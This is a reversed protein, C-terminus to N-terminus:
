HDCRYHGHIGGKEIIAMARFYEEKRTNDTLRAYRRTVEISSHGLLQQVCELRMGANLLESAFTHRLCHLSYGKGALGAKDLYKFFMVRATSYSMTDRQQSYFLYAKDPKRAKLWHQLAVRADASLYVVRGIGNKRTEFIEVRKGSLNVDQVKTDLMEGIRMGTRLLMLLMARDRIKQIVKLLQRVDEPDIARPLTEPVKIHMKRLIINPHVVKQDVLYQFFAYLCKVRSAISAPKLGRDQEKEIYSGLDDRTLTEIHVHGQHKLHTLFYLIACAASRITNPRCGRRHMDYLYNSAHNLHGLGNQGIRKLFSEILPNVIIRHVHEHGDFLTVPPDTSKAPRLNHHFSYGSSLHSYTM